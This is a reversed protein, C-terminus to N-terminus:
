QSSFFVSLSPNKRIKKKLGINKKPITGNWGGTETNNEM